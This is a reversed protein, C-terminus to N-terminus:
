DAAHLANMLQRVADRKGTVTLLGDKELRAVSEGRFLARHISLPDGRLAAASPADVGAHVDLGNPGLSLTYRDDDLDSVEVAVPTKVPKAKRKLNLLMWGLSLRENAPQGHMFHSGGWRALEQIAPELAAGLTTLRYGSAGAALECREILGSTELERLRKALLNTTIGAGGSVGQLGGLLAGYRRPGLLLDRLVLLTWREGVVDLAHALGCYQGYTRRAPAPKKPQGAARRAAGKQPHTKRRDTM